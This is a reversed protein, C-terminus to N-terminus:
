SGEEVSLCLMGLISLKELRAGYFENNVYVFAAEDGDLLSMRRGPEFRLYM